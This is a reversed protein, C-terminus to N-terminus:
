VGDGGFSCVCLVCVCVSWVCWVSGEEENEGTMDEREEERRGKTGRWECEKDKRGRGEWM